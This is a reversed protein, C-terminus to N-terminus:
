RLTNVFVAVCAAIATIEIGEFPNQGLGVAFSTVVGAGLAAVVVSILLDQSPNQDMFAMARM